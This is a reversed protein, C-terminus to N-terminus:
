GTSSIVSRPTAVRSCTWFAKGSRSRIRRNSIVGNNELQQFSVLIASLENFIVGNNVVLGFNFIVASSGANAITTPANVFLEAPSAINLTNRNTFSVDGFVGGTPILINTSGDPVTGFSWQSPNSWADIIDPQGQWINQAAAPLALSLFALGPVLRLSIPASRLCSRAKAFSAFIDSQSKM